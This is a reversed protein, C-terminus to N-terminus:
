SPRRGAPICLLLLATLGLGRTGPKCEYLDCCEGPKGSAKSVLINLYGPQCVKRLCGVPDCVCRSPLPCCEGPPAYGEILVSDEPCRPSFQVECRAKSCDPKEELRSLFFKACARPCHPASGCFCTENTFSRNVLWLPPLSLSGSVVRFGLEALRLTEEGLDAWSM